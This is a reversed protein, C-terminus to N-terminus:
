AGMPALLDRLRSRFADPAFAAARRRAGRALSERRGRDLVLTRTTAALGDLDRFVLGSVGDEVVERPGAHDFVIPVAGASMAEVTTIGFHEFRHPHRTPDEGLGTAHWYLSAAGYLQEVERRAADVHLDVPLGAAASRVRDLYPRQEESCGGVLHLSWGDLDGRRWLRGFTEVLELQKKSHGAAADFFRGVSLIIQQKDGAAVPKVPPYLVTSDRHWLRATWTRTYESNALLLDYSDIFAPSDDVLLFPAVAGARAAMRATAGAGTVIGSVAATGSSTTIRVRAVGDRDGVCGVTVAVPSRGPTADVVEAGGNLEVHAAEGAAFVVTVRRHRGRRTRVTFEANAEIRRCRAGRSGEVPGFGRGLRPPPWGERLVLGVTKNLVRQAGNFHSTAPTPFSLVYAGHAARCAEDSLYSCNIWLDYRGSEDEVAAPLDDVVATAVPTLGLGLRERLGGVPVPGTGVLTVDHDDCLEDAITGAVMEAGGFTAWFRNFVGVRM